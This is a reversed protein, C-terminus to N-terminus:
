KEPSISSNPYYHRLIARFTSGERAMESAGFQCLGLGHGTALGTVQWSDGDKTATFTSGPLAGWGWQRAQAIRRRENGPQPQPGPIHSTWPQPHRRCARCVVGYYPYGQGASDPELGVERLSHTQGGCRSAYMAAITQGNYRLVLGRTEATARWAASRPPPPSRLFQCHTTDCFDFAAASHRPGASLYSRAAVAQAKLAELPTGPPMEAAVISAVATERDMAVVATLIGASASITLVGRYLRRIKGPVTLAFSVPGGDRAAFTWTTGAPLTAARFELRQAGPEHSLLVRTEGSTALVPQTDPEVVLVTPHFLGLVGVKVTTGQQASLSTAAALLALALTALRIM